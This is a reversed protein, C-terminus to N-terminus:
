DLIRRNVLSPVFRQGGFNIENGLSICKDYSRDCEEETGVFQCEVGKFEKWRCSPSFKATTARNWQQSVKSVGELNLSRPDGDWNDVYGSFLVFPTGDVKGLNTLSAAKIIVSDDKKTGHENVTAKLARDVDDFSITARTVVEGASTPIGSLEMGRPIYLTSGYYISTSWTTFYFKDGSIDLEILLALIYEQSKFASLLAPPLTKM